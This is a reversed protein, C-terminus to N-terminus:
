ALKKWIIRADPCISKCTRCASAARSSGRPEQTCMGAYADTCDKEPMTGEVIIEM